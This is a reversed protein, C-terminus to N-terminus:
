GYKWDPDTLYEQRRIAGSLIELASVGKPYVKTHSGQIGLTGDDAPGCVVTCETWDPKFRFTIELVEYKADAM